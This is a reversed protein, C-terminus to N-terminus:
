SYKAVLFEPRSSKRKDQNLVKSKLEFIMRNWFDFFLFLTISMEIMSLWIRARVSSLLSNLQHEFWHLSVVSKIWFGLRMLPSSPNIIFCIDAPSLWESIMQVFFHVNNKGWIFKWYLRQEHTMVYFVKHRLTLFKIKIIKIIKTLFPFLLSCLKTQSSFLHSFDSM